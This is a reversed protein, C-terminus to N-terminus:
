RDNNLVDDIDRVVGTLGKRICHERLRKLGDLAEQKAEGQFRQYQEIYNTRTAVIAQMRDANNESAIKEILPDFGDRRQELTRDLGIMLCHIYVQSIETAGGFRDQFLGVFRDRVESRLNFRVQQYPQRDIPVRVLIGADFTGEGISKLVSSLGSNDLQEFAAAVEDDDM